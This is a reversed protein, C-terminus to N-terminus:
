AAGEARDAPWALALLRDVLASIEDACAGYEAMRRRFPDAVEDDPNSGLLDTARRGAGTRGLWTALAEGAPRPGILEARRVLEKFTFTKALADPDLVVAERAHQREMGIVLDAHEVDDRAILASRHARIDAGRARASEVAEDTAPRGHLALGCSVVEIALGRAEARARLM